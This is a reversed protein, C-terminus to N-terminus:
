NISMNVQIKWENNIKNFFYLGHGKFIIENSANYRSYFADLYCSTETLKVLKLSNTKSYSYGPQLWKERVLKITELFSFKDKLIIPNALILSVPYHFQNGLKEYDALTFAELYEEWKQTFFEKSPFEDLKVPTKM